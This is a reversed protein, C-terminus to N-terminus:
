IISVKFAKYYGSVASFATETIFLCCVPCLVVGDAGPQERMIFSVQCAPCFIKNTM